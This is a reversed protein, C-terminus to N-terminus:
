YSNFVGLRPGSLLEVAYIYIYIYNCFHDLCAQSARQARAAGKKNCRPHPPPTPAKGPHRKSIIQIHATKNNKQNPFPPPQQNLHHPATLWRVLGNWTSLQAPLPHNLGFLFRDEWAGAMSPLGRLRPGEFESSWPARGSPKKCRNVQCQSPCWRQSIAARM